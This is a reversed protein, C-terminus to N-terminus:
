MQYLTLSPKEKKQPSLLFRHPTIVIINLVYSADFSYRAANACYVSVPQDTVIHLSKDLPTTYDNCEMYSEEETIDIFVVGNAELSFQTSWGTNPNSIHGSCDHISSVLVQTKLYPIGGTTNSDFGNGLFSM